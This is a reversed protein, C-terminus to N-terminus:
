KVEKWSICIILHTRDLVFVHFYLSCCVEEFLFYCHQARECIFFYCKIVLGFGAASDSLNCVSEQAFIKHLRDRCCGKEMSFEYRIQSKLIFGLISSGVDMLSALRSQWARKAANKGDRELLCSHVTGHIYTSSYNSSSNRLLGAGASLETERGKM